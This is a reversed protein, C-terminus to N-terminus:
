GDADAGSPTENRTSSSSLRLCYVREQAHGAASEMDLISMRRTQGQDATDVTRARARDDQRLAQRRRLCPTLLKTM